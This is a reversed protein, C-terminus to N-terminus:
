QYITAQTTRQWACIEVIHLSRTPFVRLIVIIFIKCCKLRVHSTPSPKDPDSVWQDNIYIYLLHMHRWIWCTSQTNYSAFTTFLKSINFDAWSECTRKANVVDRGQVTRNMDEDISQDAALRWLMSIVILVRTEMKSFILIHCHDMTGSQCSFNCWLSIVPVDISFSVVRIETFCFSVEM